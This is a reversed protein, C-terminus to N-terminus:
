GGPFALVGDVDIGFHVVPGGFDAIEAFAVLGEEVGEFLDGLGAAAGGLDVVVGASPDEVVVEVEPAAGCGDVVRVVADPGDASGPEALVEPPVVLELGVFGEEAVAGIWEEAVGGEEEEVGEDFVGSAFFVPEDGAGGIRGLVAAEDHPGGHVVLDDAGEEAPGDLGALDEVDVGVEASM